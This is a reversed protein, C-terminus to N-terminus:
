DFDAADRGVDSGLWHVARETDDFFKIHLGRNRAAREFLESIEDPKYGQFCIALWLGPAAEAAKVGSQFASVTDMKRTPAPGEALVRTCHYITCLRALFSWFEEMEAPRIVFGQGHRIHIYSGTFEVTVDDFM